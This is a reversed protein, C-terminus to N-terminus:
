HAPISDKTAGQVIPETTPHNSGGEPELTIVVREYEDFPKTLKILLTSSGFENVTLTGGDTYEEGSVLWCQYTEGPPPQPFDAVYLLATEFGEGWILDADFHEAQDSPTLVIRESDDMAIVSFTTKQLYIESELAQQTQRLDAVQRSWYGNVLFLLLLMAFATGLQLSWPPLQLRKWWPTGVGKPASHSAPKPTVAPNRIASQLRAELGVPVDVPPAAYLLKDALDSYSALEEALEPQTALLKQVTAAEDSDTVGLAFAALLEEIEPNIPESNNPNSQSQGNNESKNNRM